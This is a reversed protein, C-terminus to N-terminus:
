LQWQMEEIFVDVHLSRQTGLVGGWEEKLAAALLDKAPWNPGHLVEVRGFIDQTGSIWRLESKPIGYLGLRWKVLLDDHRM